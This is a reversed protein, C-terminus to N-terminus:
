YINVNSHKIFNNGIAKIQYGQSIMAGRLKDGTGSERIM